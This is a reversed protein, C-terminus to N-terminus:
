HGIKVRMFIKLNNEGIMRICAMKTQENLAHCYKSFLVTPDTVGYAAM